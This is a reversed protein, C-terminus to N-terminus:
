HRQKLASGLLPSASMAWSRRWREHEADVYARLEVRYSRLMDVLEPSPHRGRRFRISVSGDARTWIMGGEAMLREWVKNGMTESQRTM